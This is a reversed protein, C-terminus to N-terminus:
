PNFDTVCFAGYAGKFAAKLSDVDNINAKVMEVGSKQLSKAHETNIDRTLGRVAFKNPYKELVAKV